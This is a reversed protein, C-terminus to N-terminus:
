EGGQIDDRREVWWRWLHRWLREVVEDHGPQHQVVHAHGHRLTRMVTGNFSAGQGPQGEGQEGWRM